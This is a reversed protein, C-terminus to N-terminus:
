KQARRRRRVAAAVLGAGAALVALSAPEPVSNGGGGGGPAPPCLYQGIVPISCYWARAGSAYAPTTGMAGLAAVAVLTWITNKM